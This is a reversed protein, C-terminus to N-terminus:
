YTARKANQQGPMWARPSPGKSRMARRESSRHTAMSTACSSCSSDPRAGQASYYGTLSVLNPEEKPGFCGYCERQYAPCIAGCGAQTVPGLCTIGRAVAVCVTGRRKCEICVSYRRVRPARGLVFSTIVEVLQQKNIPCGRLEFDVKVHDAIPTSTKLTQIYAPIAYVQSIFDDVDAWNRLAQIGGATACAGITILYRCQRRIEHIRELDHATTVSGAVLGVDFPGELARTRAELSITTRLLNQEGRPPVFLDNRPM